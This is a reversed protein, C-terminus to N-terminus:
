RFQYSKLSFSTTSNRCLGSEVTCHLAVMLPLDHAGEVPKSDFGSDWVCRSLQICGFGTGFLHKVTNIKSRGNALLNLGYRNKSLM